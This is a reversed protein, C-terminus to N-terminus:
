ANKYAKMAESYNEKAEENMEVYQEKDKDSLKKWKEGLIKSIEGMKADKNEKMVTQRHEDCFFMYASKPKKPMNPDKKPKMKSIDTSVYKKVLEDIQDEADLEKCINEILSIHTKALLKSIDLITNHHEM